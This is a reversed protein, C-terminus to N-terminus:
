LPYARAAIKALCAELPATTDVRVAEPGFPEFRKKM